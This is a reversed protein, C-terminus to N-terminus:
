RTDCQPWGSAGPLDCLCPAFAADERGGGGGSVYRRWVHLTWGAMVALLLQYVEMSSDLGRKFRDTRLLKVPHGGTRPGQSLSLVNKRLLQFGLHFGDIELRVSYQKIIANILDNGTKTCWVGTQFSPM